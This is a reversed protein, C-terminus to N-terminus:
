DNPPVAEPPKPPEKNYNDKRIDLFYYHQSGRKIFMELKNLQKEIEAKDTYKISSFINEMFKDIGAVSGSTFLIIFMLGENVLFDIPRSINYLNATIIVSYALHGFIWISQLINIDGNIIKKGLDKFKNQLAQQWTTPNKDREEYLNWLDVWRKVGSKLHDTVLSMKEAIDIGKTMKIEYCDELTDGLAYLDVSILALVFYLSTMICIKFITFFVSFQAGLFLDLVYGITGIILVISGGFKITRKSYKGM